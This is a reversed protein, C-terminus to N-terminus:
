FASYRRRTGRRPREIPGTPPENGRRRRRCDSHRESPPVGWTSLIFFHPSTATNGGGLTNCRINEKVSHLRPIAKPDQAAVLVWQAHQGRNSNGMLQGQNSLSLFWSREGSININDIYAKCLLYMPGQITLEFRFHSSLDDEACNSFEVRGQNTVRLCKGPKKILEFRVETQTIYHAYMVEGIHNKTLPHHLRVATKQGSKITFKGGRGGGGILPSPHSVHSNYPHRAYLPARMYTQSALQQAYRADEEELAAAQQRGANAAQADEEAQLKRAYDEDSMTESM